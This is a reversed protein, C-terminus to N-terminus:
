TLDRTSGESTEIEEHRGSCSHQNVVIWSRGRQRKCRGRNKLQRLRNGDSRLGRQVDRAIFMRAHDSFV